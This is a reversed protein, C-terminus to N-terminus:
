FYFTAGVGPTVSVIALVFGSGNVAMPVSVMLRGNVSFSPSFFYEAGFGVNAGFGIGPDGSGTGSMGFSAAFHIFPRLADGPTRLLYDFGFAASIAYSFNNAIGFGFGVDILLKFADTAMYAVGLSPAAVGANGVPVGVSGSAGFGARIGFAGSQAAVANGEFTKEGDRPKPKYTSSGNGTNANSNSNSNNSNANNNANNNNNNANNNSNPTVPTIRRASKRLSRCRRSSCWRM